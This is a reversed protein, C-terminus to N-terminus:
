PVGPSGISRSAVRRANPKAATCSGTVATCSERPLASACSSNSIASTSCSRPRKAASTSSNAVSSNPKRVSGSANVVPEEIMGCFRFGSTNSSM